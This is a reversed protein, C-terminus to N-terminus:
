RKRQPSIRRDGLTCYYSQLQRTNGALSKGSATMRSRVSQMCMRLLNAINVLVLTPHREGPSNITFILSVHNTGHSRETQLGLGM